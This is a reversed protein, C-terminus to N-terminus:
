ALAHLGPSLPGQPGDWLRAIVPQRDQKDSHGWFASCLTFAGYIYYFSFFISHGERIEDMFVLLWAQFYKISRGLWLIKPGNQHCTEINTKFICLHLYTTWPAAIEPCPRPHSLCKLNGVGSKPRTSPEQGGPAELLEAKCWVPVSLNMVTWSIIRGLCCPLVCEHLVLLAMSKKNSAKGLCDVPLSLLQLSVPAGYDSGTIPDIM